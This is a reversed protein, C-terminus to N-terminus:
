ATECDTARRIALGHLPERRGAAFGRARRGAAALSRLLRRVTGAWGPADAGCEPCRGPSGRLDYGCRTCRGQRLRRRLRYRAGWGVTAPAAGVVTLAWWPAAYLNAEARYTGGAVIFTGRWRSRGFGLLKKHRWHPDFGMETATNPGEYIGMRGFRSVDARYNPNGVPPTISQVGFHVRGDHTSLFYAARDGRRVSATGTHAYSLSWLLVLTAPVSLTLIAVLTRARPRM